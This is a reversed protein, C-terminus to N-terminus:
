RQSGGGAALLRDIARAVDHAATAPDEGRITIRDLIDPLAAEVERWREIRAGWPIRAHQTARRFVREWGLTDRAALSEAVSALSPVELGAQARITQALSDALYVALEVSRKRHPALAPVALGSAYVVTAPPVGARHPIEAFGMRLRHQALYPRFNPIWFHGATIMAVKGTAFMRLNDGLSKRLTYARPVISDTTVWGAYWRIAEVTAPSDLCGTARRGGPCLVDGGGSWIWPIWLFARHDFAAGWQDVQGDHDTDKTLQKAIRIFDDWTWDDGPYALGARDFLDKNYVVVMPTYGKPLAYVAAGRTFISLVTPDYRKLDVGLRPLYPALDLVTGRNTFAPVDINDLLFVDPPAGAAMSTLIRERYEAQYTAASQQVVRLGPHAREYPELVRQELEAEYYDAWNALELTLRDGGGRASEARGCGCLWAAAAAWRWGRAWRV